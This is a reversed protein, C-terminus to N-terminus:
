ESFLEKNLLDRLEDKKESILADLTGNYEVEGYILVCGADFDGPTESVALQTSLETSLSAAFGAPLRSMDRKNLIVTGSEKQAHARIFRELMLFYETDTLAAVSAKVDALVEDIIRNREQLLFRKTQLKAASRNRATHAKADVKALTIRKEAQASALSAESALFLEADAEAASIELEGRSQADALIKSIIKDLGSM